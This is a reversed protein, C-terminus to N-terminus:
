SPYSGVFWDELSDLPDFTSDITGSLGYLSQIREEECAGIDLTM